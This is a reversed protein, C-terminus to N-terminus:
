TGNNAIRKAELLALRDARENGPIGAHAPLWNFRISYQKSLAILQQWLDKNKVPRKSSTKWGNRRWRESWKLGDRVYQSDTLIEVKCEKKLVLLAEIVAQLEMRNNTTAKTGGSIEKVHEEGTKPHKYSLVAAWGGIGPNGLCSGDTYIKVVPM